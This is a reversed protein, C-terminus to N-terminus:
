FEGIGDMSDQGTEGYMDDYHDDEDGYEDMKDKMDDKGMMNMGGLGSNKMEAMLQEMQLDKDTMYEFEYNKRKKSKSTSVPKRIKKCRKSWQKCTKEKLEDLTLKNKWLEASILDRDLDEDMLKECSNAITSCEQECKSAGGPENLVIYTGGADKKEDIDLYRIWTGAKL